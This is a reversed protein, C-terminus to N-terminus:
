HQCPRYLVISRVLCLPWIGVRRMEVKVGQIAPADHERMCVSAASYYKRLQSVKRM